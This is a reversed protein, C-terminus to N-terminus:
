DQLLQKAIILTFSTASSSCPDRQTHLDFQQLYQDHCAEAEVLFQIVLSEAPQWTVVAVAALIARQKSHLYSSYSFDPVSVTTAEQLVTDGWRHGRFQRIRVKQFLPSTKLCAPCLQIVLPPSKFPLPLSKSVSGNSKAMLYFSFHPQPPCNWRLVMNM